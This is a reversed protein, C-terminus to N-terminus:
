FPRNRQMAALVTDTTTPLLRKLWDALYSSATIRVRARNREIARVMRRACKEPALTRREVYGSLWSRLSEQDEGHFRSAEIIHTRVLGPYATTVGIGHPALEGRLAEGFGRLAFKSASYTSQNPMAMLGQLSSVNLVHAEPERKLWPLFFYTGYVVGWLNTGLIWDLDELTHDELSSMVTVGANNVLVHAHGHADIVEQPLAAMRERDAVDALHLSTKRGLAHVARATEELGDRDRRTVLALHCGRRALEVATARGIGSAAGTVVAVRDALQV